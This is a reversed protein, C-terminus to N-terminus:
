SLQGIKKLTEGAKGTKNKGCVKVVDVFKRRAHDWCGLSVIDTLARQTNYGSYGDTQLLGKFEKLRTNVIDASRSLSFEFVVFRKGPLYSHYLWM